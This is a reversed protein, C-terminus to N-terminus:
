VDAHAGRRRTAAITAARIQLVGVARLARVAETLTAGTTVVDDVLVVMNPRSGDRASPSGLEDLSAQDVSMSGVVNRWRPAAGLGSQDVVLRTIVLPTVVVVDVGVRTLETGVRHALLAMTDVGRRRVAAPSSPAPVLLCPSEPTPPSEMAATVARALARSLPALLPRQGRDKFASLVERVSGDYAAVSWCDPFGAPRPTPETVRPEGSLRRSCRSCWLTGPGGCGVCDRAAVLDVAAAWFAKSGNPPM